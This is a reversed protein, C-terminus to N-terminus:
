LGKIYKGTNNNLYQMSENWNTFTILRRYKKPLSVVLNFLCIDRWASIIKEDHSKVAILHEKNEDGELNKYKIENAAHLHDDSLKLISLATLICQKYVLIARSLAFLYTISGYCFAGLVFWFGATLFDQELEVEM